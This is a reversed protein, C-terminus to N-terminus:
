ASRHEIRTVRRELDHVQEHDDLADAVHSLTDAVTGQVQDLKRDLSSIRGDLAAIDDKTAVQALQQSVTAEIFQKLDRFLEENTMDAILYPM